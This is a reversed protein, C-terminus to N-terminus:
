TSKCKAAAFVAFSQLGTHIHDKEMEMRVPESQAPPLDELNKKRSDFNAPIKKFGEIKIM